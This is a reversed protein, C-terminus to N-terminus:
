EGEKPFLINKYNQIEEKLKQNEAQLIANEELLDNVTENPDIM